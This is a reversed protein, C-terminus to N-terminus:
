WIMRGQYLPLYLEDGKKWRNGECRISLRRGRLQAATRFLHSDNTMDFMGCTGCRGLASRTM